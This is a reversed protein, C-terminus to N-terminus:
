LSHQRRQIAEPRERRGALQRPRVRVVDDTFAADGRLVQPEFGCPASCRLRLAQELADDSAAGPIM